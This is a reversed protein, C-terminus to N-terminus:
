RSSATSAASRQALSTGKRANFVIDDPSPVDFAFGRLPPLPAPPLPAIAHEKHKRRRPEDGRETRTRSGDRTRESRRREKDDPTRVTKPSFIPVEIVPEIAPQITLDSDAKSRATKSKMALKSQKQGSQKPSAPSEPSRKTNSPAEYRMSPPLKSQEKPLLNSLSQYTTTIATTATPGNATPILYETHSRPLILGPQSSPQAKAKTAQSQEQAKAQALRALKSLQRPQPQESSTPPVSQSAATQSPPPAPGPSRSPSSSLTSAAQSPSKLPVPPADPTGSPTDTWASPHRSTPISLTTPEKAAERDMAELAFASQLAENVVRSVSTPLSSESTQSMSSPRSPLRKNPLLSVMSAASPRLVPYTVDSATETIYSKASVSSVSSRASSRSSALASLKSKKESGTRETTKASQKSLLSTHSPDPPRHLSSKSRLDPIVPLNEELPAEDSANPALATDSSTSPTLRRSAPTVSGSREQYSLRQLASPSPSPPLEDPHLSPREIVQGYDTTISSHLTARSGGPQLYPDLPAPLHRPSPEWDRADESLETLETITYLSGPHTSARTTEQESSSLYDSATLRVLPVNHRGSTTDTTSSWDDEGDSPPLPLPKGRPDLDERRRMDTTALAQRERAAFRREQKGLLDEIAQEIDFYYEYLSDKIDQDTLASQKEDGLTARIHELGDMMRDYDEPSLDEEGGDSIADDEMEEHIDINRVFRHRSM